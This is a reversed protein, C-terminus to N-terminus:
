RTLLYHGGGAARAAFFEQVRCGLGLYHEFIGRTTLRWALALHPAEVLM